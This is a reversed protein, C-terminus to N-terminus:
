KPITYSAADLQPECELRPRLRCVSYRLILEDGVNGATILSTWRAAGTTDGVLTATAIKTDAGRRRRYITADIRTDSPLATATLTMEGGRGPDVPRVSGAVRPFPEPLAGTLQMSKANTSSCVAEGDCSRVLIINWDTVNVPFSLSTNIDGTADPPVEAEGLSVETVSDPATASSHIVGVLSLHLPRGDRRAAVVVIKVVHVGDGAEVSARISPEVPFAKSTVSLKTAGYLGMSASAVALLLVAATTPVPVCHLLVASIILALLLAIVLWLPVDRRALWSRTEPRAGSAGDDIDPFLLWSVFGLAAIVLPVWSLFVRGGEAFAPALLGCIVGLGVLVFIWLAAKPDARLLRDLAGERIGFFTAIGGVLSFTAISWKAVENLAHTEFQSPSGGPAVVHRSICRRARGLVGL